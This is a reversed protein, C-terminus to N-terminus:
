ETDDEEELISYATCCAEFTTLVLTGVLEACTLNNEHSHRDILANLENTFQTIGTRSMAMHFEDKKITEDLDDLDSM